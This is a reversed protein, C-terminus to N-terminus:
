VDTLRRYIEKFTDTAFDAEKGGPLWDAYWRGRANPNEDKSFHYEPHFYLRRAYPTSSVIAVKGSKSQSRDLFTSENQLNGTDRPFVQAQVVKTHVAEATQELATIQAGTLQRIKPLNLRVVSIVNILNSM